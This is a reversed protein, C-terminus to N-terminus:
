SRGTVTHASALWKALRVKRTRRDPVAKMRGGSRVERAWRCGGMTRGVHGVDHGVHQDVRQGVRQVGRLSGQDITAIALKIRGCLM